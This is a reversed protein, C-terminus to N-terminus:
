ASRDSAYDASILGHARFQKVAQPDGAIVAHLQLVRRAYEHAPAFVMEGDIIRFSKNWHPGEDQQRWGEVIRRAWALEADSVGFVENAPTVHGPFVTAVGDFGLSRSTRMAARVADLDKPPALPLDCANWGRARAITVLHSRCHALWSEDGTREPGFVPVGMELGFDGAAVSVGTVRRAIRAVAELELVMAPTDVELLIEVACGPAAADICAEARAVDAAGFSRSLMISHAGAQVVARIDDEIWPSGPNNVRVCLERATHGGAGLADVVMERAQQKARDIRAVADQLDFLLVDAAIARSKDIFEAVNGPVLFTSRRLRKM